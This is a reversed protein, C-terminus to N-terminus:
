KLATDHIALLRRVGEAIHRSSLTAGSINAIDEDLKLRAAKEGLGDAVLEVITGLLPRAQRLEGSRRTM